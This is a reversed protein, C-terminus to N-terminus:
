QVAKIKLFDELAQQATLTLNLSKSEEASCWKSSIIENNLKLDTIETSALFCDIKYEKYRTHYLYTGIKRDIKIELGVEEKVERMTAERPTEKRGIKGGPPAWKDKTTQSMVWLIKGKCIIFASASPIPFKYITDKEDM